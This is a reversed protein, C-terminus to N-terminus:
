ISDLTYLYLFRAYILPSARLVIFVREDKNKRDNSVLILVFLRTSLALFVWLTMAQLLTTTTTSPTTRAIRENCDYLRKM